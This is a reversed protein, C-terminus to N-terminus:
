EANETNSAGFKEKSPADSVSNDDQTARDGKVRVQVMSDREPM